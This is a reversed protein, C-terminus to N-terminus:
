QYRLTFKRPGFFKSQSILLKLYFASFHISFNLIHGYLIGQYLLISQAILLESKRNVAPYWNNATNNPQDDDNGNESAAATTTTTGAATIALRSSDYDM